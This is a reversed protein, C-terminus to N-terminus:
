FVRLKQIVDGVPSMHIKQGSVVFFYRFIVQLQSPLVYSLAFLYKQQWGVAPASLFLSHLFCTFFRNV